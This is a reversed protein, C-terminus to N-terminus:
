SADSSACRAIVRRARAVVPADIMTGALRGVGGAAAAAIVARAWEVESEDPRLGARIPEVQRPHIALKGGFGLDAAHRADDEIRAADDITETVGDLPAPRTAVRSAFVIEWRAFALTDRRHACGLDAAFDLSGFALREM